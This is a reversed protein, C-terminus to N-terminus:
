GPTVIFGDQQVSSRAGDHVTLRVRYPGPELDALRLKFDVEGFHGAGQRNTGDDEDDDETPEIVRELGATSVDAPLTRVVQGTTDIVEMTAHAGSDVGNLAAYIRVTDTTAFQRRLTLAGLRGPPLPDDAERAASVVLGSMGLPTNPVAVTMWKHREEESEAKRRVHLDAVTAPAPDKPWWPWLLVGAFAIPFTWMLMASRGDLSSPSAWQLIVCGVMVGSPILVAAWLHQARSVRTRKAFLARVIVGAGLLMWLQGLTRDSDVRERDLGHWQAAGLALKAHNFGAISRMLLGGAACSLGGRFWSLRREDNRLRRVANPLVSTVAQRWYWRRAARAGSRDGIAVFEERMDGQVAERETRALSWRLLREATRPPETQLTPSTM